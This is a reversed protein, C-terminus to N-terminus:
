VGGFREILREVSLVSLDYARADFLCELLFCFVFFCKYCDFAEFDM